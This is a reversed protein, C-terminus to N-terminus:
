RMTEEPSLVDFIISQWIVDNHAVSDPNDITISANLLINNLFQNQPNNDDFENYAIDPINLKFAQFIYPTAGALYPSDGLYPRQMGATNDFTYWSLTNFQAHATNPYATGDLIISWNYIRLVFPVKPNGALAFLNFAAIIGNADPSDLTIINQQTPGHAYINKRFASKAKNPISLHSPVTSSPKFLPYIRSPQKDEIGDAM